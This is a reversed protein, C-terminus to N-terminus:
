QTFRYIYVYRSNGQQESACIVLTEADLWSINYEEWGNSRRSLMKLVGTEPDLIGIQSYYGRGAATESRYTVLIRDGDPSEITRLGERALDTLKLTEGSRLDILDISGDEQYLLGHRGEKGWYNIPGYGDPGYTREEVDEVLIRKTGTPIDYAVVHIRGDELDQQYVLTDDDLFYPEASYADLPASGALEPLSIVTGRRIDCFWYGYKEEPLTEDSGHLIACSLDGNLDAYDIVLNEIPMGELLYTVEQSELDLLLPHETYTYTECITELIYLRLLVVDTRGEITEVAWGNGIPDENLGKAWEATCLKGNLVAYDVLIDYTRGHYTLPFQLRTSEVKRIGDATIEWFAPNEPEADPNERRDECDFTYFGGDMNRIYGNHAFYYASVEGDINVIGMERLDSQALQTSEGTEDLGPQEKAPPLERTEIRFISFIIERFDDSVAMATLALALVAVVAAALAALRRLPRIFSVHEETLFRDDVMGIADLLVDRDM